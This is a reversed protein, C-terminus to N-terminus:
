AGRRRLVAGVGVLVVGLTSSLLHWEGFWLPLPAAASVLRYAPTLIPTPAPGGGSVPPRVPTPSATGGRVDDGESSDTAPSGVATPSATPSGTDTDTPAPTGVATGYLPLDGTLERGNRDSEYPLTEFPFQHRSVVTGRQTVEVVRANRTDTILTNGNPLRDADRPWNFRRDDAGTLVWVPRWDGDATRHLEVVRHNESDAVLVAGEDLWQPNHQHDLVNPDGDANIVEVVGEGRQLVVLQNANRVSVLFRGEGIRDVDNIHLWDTRTPDSPPDYRSSANWQWTVEGGRVTLVRERDMDTVLFEGSPLLEVDHVESNARTRVPFSWEYEIEPGGPADPDLVRFGTRACPSEYPGCDEYGGQMFGALVSGNDLRTVDFYTESNDVTWAVSGDRLAAVYGGAHYTGVGQVGVLTSRGAPTQTPTPTPTPSRTSTPTGPNATPSPTATSTAAPTRTPEAAPGPPGTDALVPGFVFTSALLLAGVAAVVASKRPPDM